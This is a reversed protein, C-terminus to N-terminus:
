AAQAASAPPGSLDRVSVIAPIALVTREEQGHGNLAKIEVLPVRGQGFLMSVQEFPMATKVVTGNMLEIATKAKVALGEM